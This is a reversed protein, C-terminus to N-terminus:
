FIRGLAGVIKPLLPLLSLVMSTVQEPTGVEPAQVVTQAEGGFPGRILNAYETLKTFPLNQEYLHRQMAEGIRAQELARQQAGIGSLIEAPREGLQGVTPAMQLGSLLLQLGRNYADSYMRSSIDGAAQAAREMAQAEALAQRSSGTQGALGAGARIAPLAQETLGTWIPRLAGEVAKGLWPDGLTMEPGKLLQQWGSTAAGTIQPLGTRAYKALSQQAEKELPTFGAVTEGPFFTPGPSEYLKKAEEFTQELYPRQFEPPGTRSVTTTTGGARSV